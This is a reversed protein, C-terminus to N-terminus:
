STPRRKLWRRVRKEVRPMLLDELADEFAAVCDDLEPFQEYILIDAGLTVGLGGRVHEVRPEATYQVDMPPDIGRRRLLKNTRRLLKGEDIEAYSEQVIGHAEERPMSAPFVFAVPAKM